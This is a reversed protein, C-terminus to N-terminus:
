GQVWPQYYPTTGSIKKRVRVHKRKRIENKDIRGIM